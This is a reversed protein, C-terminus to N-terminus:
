DTKVSSVARVLPCLVVWDKGSMGSISNVTGPMWFSKSLRSGFLAQPGSSSRGLTSFSSAGVRAGMRVSRKLLDNLAPTTGWSQRSAFTAAM